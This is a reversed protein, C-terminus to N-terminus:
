AADAAEQDVPQVLVTAGSPEGLDVYRKTAAIRVVRSDHRVLGGDALGDLTSRILKDLDPKRDAWRARKPRSKPKPMRFEVQVDVPVDDDVPGHQLAAAHAEWAVAERWARHKQRGTTSGGEILRAHGGRVVATKSGQPAPEGIVVLGIEYSTM